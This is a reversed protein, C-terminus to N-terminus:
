LLERISELVEMSKVDLMAIEDLIEEPNGLVKEDKKHPNKLSLDYTIKDVDSINISWSKESEM